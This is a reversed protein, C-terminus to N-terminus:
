KGWAKKPKKKIEEISKEVKSKKFSHLKILLKIKEGAANERSEDCNFWWHKIVRGACDDENKEM